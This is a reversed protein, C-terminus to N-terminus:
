RDPDWADPEGDEIWEDREKTWKWPKEFYYLLDTQEPFADGEVMVRAFAMVEDHDDFWSCGKPFEDALQRGRPRRKSGEGYDPTGYRAEVVERTTM